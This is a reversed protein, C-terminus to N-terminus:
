PIGLSTACSWAGSGGFRGLTERVKVAVRVNTVPDLLDDNPGAWGRWLQMLGLSNGSDGIAGPRYRSECWAIAKMPAGWDAPVDAETFIADVDMETLQDPWPHVATPEPTLVPHADPTPTATPTFPEQTPTSSNLPFPTASVVSIPTETATRYQIPM